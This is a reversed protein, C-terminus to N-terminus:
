YSSYIEDLLYSYWYENNNENIQYATSEFIVDNYVDLFLDYIKKIPLLLIFGMKNNISSNIHKINSLDYNITLLSNYFENPILNNEKSIALIIFDKNKYDDTTHFNLVNMCNLIIKYIKCDNLDEIKNSYIFKIIMYMDNTNFTNNKKDIYNINNNPINDIINNKTNNMNISKNMKIRILAYYSFMDNSDNSENSDTNKNTEKNIMKDIIYKNNIILENISELFLGSTVNIINKKTNITTNITTNINNNYIKSYYILLHICYIIFIISFLTFYISVNKVLSIKEYDISLYNLKDNLKVYVDSTNENITTIINNIDQLYLYETISILYNYPNIYSMKLYHLINRKNNTNPNM